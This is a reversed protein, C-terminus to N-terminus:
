QEDRLDEFTVQAPDEGLWWRMVSEANTWKDTTLGSEKRAILMRGFARLYNERYKPCRSFQAYKQKSSGMPCGICGIRKWGCQYLPNSECGYHRLFEWVDEDTWDIIPNVMTSTTRYCQEVIRRSESNDMNLVIGGKATTSFDAGLEEALAQTTKPKGLIKVLGGNNARSRSEAKRVGTVRIRFQGGREKLEECCYRALRTPPMKKDVILQWMTREPYSIHIGPISRVYRVTEPADVTTHSHWLEHRVGAKASAAIREIKEKPSSRSECCPMHPSDRYPCFAKFGDQEINWVIEAEHACGPCFKTVPKIM